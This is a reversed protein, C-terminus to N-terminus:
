DGCVDEIDARVETGHGRRRLEHRAAAAPEESNEERNQAGPQLDENRVALICMHQLPQRQAEKSVHADDQEHVDIPM